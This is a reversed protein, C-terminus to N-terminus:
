PRAVRRGRLLTREAKRMRRVDAAGHDDYGSLHLLGHALYLRIEDEFSCGHRRAQRRAMDLSIVIEASRAGYDFTLIDTPSPDNMTRGHLRSMERDGVFAVSLERLTVPLLGQWSLVLTRLRRSPPRLKPHRNRLSLNM